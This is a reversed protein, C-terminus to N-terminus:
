KEQEFEEFFDNKESKEKSKVRVKRKKLLKEKMEQPIFVRKKGNLEVVEAILSESKAKIANIQGRITSKEKGLLAALDEYSLKEEYNLLTALIAREMLSFKDIEPTQVGTQVGTQVAEVATQKGNSIRPTKFLRNSRPTQLLVQANLFEELQAEISSIKDKIETIEKSNEGEKEEVKKLWDTMSLMDKKVSDFGKKTDERVKEVGKEKFLWGFMTRKSM